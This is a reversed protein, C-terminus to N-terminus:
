QSTRAPRTWLFLVRPPSRKSTSSTTREDSSFANVRENRPTYRRKKLTYGMRLIVRLITSRSVPGVQKGENRANYAETFELSTWDPNREILRQLFLEGQGDVLRQRGGSHPRPEVGGTERYRRILRVVTAEGVSFREALEVLEDGYQEWRKIIRERLDRSIPLSM